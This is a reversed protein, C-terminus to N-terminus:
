TLNEFPTVSSYIAFDFYPKLGLIHMESKKMFEPNTTNSVIGMPVGMEKFHNLVSVVEPYVKRESYVELYYVELLKELTIVGNLSIGFDNILKQLVIEFRAEQNTSKSKEIMPRFIKRSRDLFEEFGPLSIRKGSLFTFVKQLPLRDDEKGLDVLTYAWDFGIARFPFNM